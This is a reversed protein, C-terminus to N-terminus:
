GGGGGGAGPGLVIRDTLGLSRAQGLSLMWLRAKADWTGGAARVAKGLEKEGWAVRLGVLVSNLTPAEDVVLEVTTQRRQGQLDVRYRVCVLQEGYAAAWRRAGPAKPGLKKIVRTPPPAALLAAGPRAGAPATAASTEHDTNAAVTRPPAQNHM